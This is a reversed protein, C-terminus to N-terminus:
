DAAKTLCVKRRDGERPINNHPGPGPPVQGNGIWAINSIFRAYILDGVKPGDGKEVSEIRIAAVSHTEETSPHRIVKSYIATVTVTVVHPSEREAQGPMDVKVAHTVTLLLFAAFSLALFSRLTM